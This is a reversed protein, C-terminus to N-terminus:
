KKQPVPNTMNQQNVMGDQLVTKAMELLMKDEKKQENTKSQIYEEVYPFVEKIANLIEKEGMFIMKGDKDRAVCNLGKETIEVKYSNNGIFVNFRTLDSNIFLDNNGQHLEINNTIINNPTRVTLNTNFNLEHAKKNEFGFSNSFEKIKHEENTKLDIAYLGDEKEVLQYGFLKLKLSVLEKNKPNVKVKNDTKDVYIEEHEKEYAALKTLIEQFDKDKLLEEYYGPAKSKISDIIASIEGLDTVLKGGYYFDYGIFGQTVKIRFQGQINSMEYELPKTVIITNKNQDVIGLQNDKIHIGLSDDATKVVNYRSDYILEITNKTEKDQVYLKENDQILKYGNYGLIRELRSIYEKPIENNKTSITQIKNNIEESNNKMAKRLIDQYEDQFQNNIKRLTGRLEYEINEMIKELARDDIGLFSINYYEIKRTIQKIFEKSIDELWELNSRRAIQNLSESYLEITLNINTNPNISRYMSDFETELSSQMKNIQHFGTSKMDSILYDEIWEELRHEPIGRLHSQIADIIQYFYKKRYEMLLYRYEETIQEITKEQVIQGQRRFEEMNM